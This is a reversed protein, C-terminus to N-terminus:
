CFLFILLNSIKYCKYDKKSCTFFKIFFQKNLIAHKFIINSIEILLSAVELQYKM